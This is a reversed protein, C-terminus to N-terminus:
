NHLNQLASERDAYIQFITDFASIRFVEQICAQMSCLALISNLNEAKKLAMLLVRLGSSSIYDLHTCDIVVRSNVTIVELLENEFKLYNTTDLRGNLGIIRIGNTTESTFEM